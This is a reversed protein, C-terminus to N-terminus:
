KNWREVHALWVERQEPTLESMGLKGDEIQKILRLNDFKRTVEDALSGYIFSANESNIAIADSAVREYLTVILQHAEKVNDTLEKILSVAAGINVLTSRVFEDHTM